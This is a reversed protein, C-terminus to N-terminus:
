GEWTELSQELYGLRAAGRQIKGSSTKPVNGPKLLMVDYATIEHNRAVAARIARKIGQPNTTAQTEVDLATLQKQRKVEAVIVLREEGDVDLSFAANGGARVAPHAQDVTTEIDQPYHNLGGIIILDKLRGTIYLEGGDM